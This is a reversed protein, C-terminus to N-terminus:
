ATATAVPSVAAERQSEFLKSMTRQRFELSGATAHLCCIKM